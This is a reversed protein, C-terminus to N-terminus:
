GTCKNLFVFLFLFFGERVCACLIAFAAEWILSKCILNSKSACPITEVLGRAEEAKYDTCYLNCSIWPSGNIWEVFCFCSGMASLVVCGTLQRLKISSTSFALYTKQPTTHLPYPCFEYFHHAQRILGSKNTQVTNRSLEVPFDLCQRLLTLRGLTYDAPHGPDDSVDRSPCTVTMCAQMIDVGHLHSGSPFTFRDQAPHTLPLPPQFYLYESKLLVEKTKCPIQHAMWTYMKNFFTGSCDSTKKQKQKKTHKKLSKPDVNKYTARSLVEALFFMFLLIIKPPPAEWQMICKTRLDREEARSKMLSWLQKRQSLPCVKFYTKDISTRCVSAETHQWDVWPTIFLEGLLGFTDEAERMKGGPHKQRKDAERWRKHKQFPSAAQPIGSYNTSFPANM